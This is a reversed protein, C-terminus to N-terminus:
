ILYNGKEDYFHDIYYFNDGDYSEEADDHLIRVYITKGIPNNNTLSMIETWDAQYLKIIYTKNEGILTGMYGFGSNGAIGPDDEKFIDEIVLPEVQNSPKDNSPNENIIDAFCIGMTFPIILLAVIIITKLRM